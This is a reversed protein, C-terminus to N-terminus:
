NGRGVRVPAAEGRPAQREYLRPSRQLARQRFSIIRRSLRGLEWRWHSDDIESRMTVYPLPSAAWGRTGVRSKRLILGGPPSPSPLQMAVPMAPNAHRGALKRTRQM